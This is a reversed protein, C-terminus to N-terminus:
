TCRGVTGASHDCRRPSCCDEDTLCEGTSCRCLGDVCLLRSCCYENDYCRTGVTGCCILDGGPDGRLRDCRLGPDCCPLRGACGNRAETCLSPDNILQCTGSRCVLGPMCQAPSACCSDGRRGFCPGSSMTDPPAIVMGDDSPRAVDARVDPAVVDPVPTVTQDDPPALVDMTPASVDAPAVSVDAGATPKNPWGDSSCGLLVVAMACAAARM